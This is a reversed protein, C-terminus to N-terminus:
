RANGVPSSGSSGGSNFYGSMDVGWANTEDGPGLTRVRVNAGTHPAELIQNNGLYIAIHDAGVNRSNEDWAVLDGPQLANIAVRKGANAQMYSIRPLNIGAQGYAWQVLGSCDFAGPASGGWSYPTGIQAMAKQIITGRAGTVGLAGPVNNLNSGPLTTGGMSATFEALTMPKLFQSDAAAQMASPSGVPNDEDTVAKEGSLVSKEKGLVTTEDLPNTEKQVDAANGQNALDNNPQTTDTPPKGLLSEDQSQQNQLGASALASGSVQALNSQMVPGQVPAAGMSGPKQGLIGEADGQWKAYADPFASVQVAQAAQTLSMNGRDSFSFLGPEGTHGGEFFMRAAEAPDMRQQASGWPARQQFLGLSDPGAQDGYNINKLGSEQMATMLAITIDRQSAGLQNGVDIITQANQLQEPDWNTM